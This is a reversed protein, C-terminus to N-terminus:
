VVKNSKKYVPKLIKKDKNMILICNLKRSNLVFSNISNKVRSLAASQEWSIKADPSKVKKLVSLCNQYYKHFKILRPSMSRIQRYILHFVQLNRRGLVSPM